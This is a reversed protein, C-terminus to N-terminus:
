VFCQPGRPQRRGFKRLETRFSHSLDPGPIFEHQQVDTTSQMVDRLLSEGICRCRLSEPRLRACAHQRRAVAPLDRAGRRCCTAVSAYLLARM